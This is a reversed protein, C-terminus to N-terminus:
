RIIQIKKIMPIATPHDKPSLIILYGGPILNSVDFSHISLTNDVLITKTMRDSGQLDVISVEIKETSPSQMVLNFKGDSPNPYLDCFLYDEPVRPVATGMDLPQQFGQTLIINPTIFTEVATLEGTTFSLMGSANTYFGGSSAVVSPTLQQASINTVSVLIFLFLLYQDTFNKM